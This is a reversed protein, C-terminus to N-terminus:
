YLLKRNIFLANGTLNFDTGVLAIEFGYETLTTQLSSFDAGGQYLENRVSVEIFVARTRNLVSRAGLLVLTEAGQVDIQLVDIYGDKFYHDLTITPVPFSEAQKANYSHRNFNSIRLLSGAGELSTEHFEASGCYDSVASAVIVVKHNNGWKKRLGTLYRHSCEFVVITARPYNTLIAKIESGLYGGVICWLNITSSDVALYKHVNHETVNQVYDYPPRFDWHNPFLRRTLRKIASRM